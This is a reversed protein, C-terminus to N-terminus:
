GPQREVWAGTSAEALQQYARAIATQGARGPFATQSDLEGPRQRQRYGQRALTALQELDRQQQRMVESEVAPGHGPVVRHPALALLAGLSEPWELPYSDQFGPPGDTDLLDGSFLIRQDPLWVALDNDTHGRGPHILTVLRGGLDLEVEDEVLCEPVTLPSARVEAAVDSGVGKLSRLDDWDGQRLRFAVERRQAEGEWRLREACRRQSWVNPGELAGNGFCHDWHCHSNVAGLELATKSRAVAVLFRGAELSHGTELLLARERGVVLGVNLRLPELVMLYTGTGLRRWGASASM